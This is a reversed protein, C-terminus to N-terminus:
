RNKFIEMFADRRRRSIPVKEGNRLEIMGGELKIFRVVFNLNVIHSKHIRLFHYEEMMEEYHKLSKSSLINWGDSMLFQTYSGDAELRVINRVPLIELASDTSITIRPDSVNFELLNNVIPQLDNGKGQKMVDDKVREIAAELEEIDIPKLLYDVASFKFAKVAYEDYATIFILRFTHSGIEKLLDFGTGDQMRIDLLVLDPDHQQICNIGSAVGDAVGVVEVGSCYKLLWRELSQRSKEEDDIIVIRLMM